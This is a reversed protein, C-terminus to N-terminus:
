KIKLEAETEIWLRAGCALPNDPRYVMKSPGLIDVEHCYTVTKDDWIVKCVPLNAAYKNNHQIVNRNIHIIKM